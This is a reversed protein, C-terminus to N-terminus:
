WIKGKPSTDKFWNVYVRWYPLDFGKTFPELLVTLWVVSMVGQTSESLEVQFQEVVSLIPPKETKGFRLLTIYKMNLAEDLM